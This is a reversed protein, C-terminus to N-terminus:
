NGRKRGSKKKTSKKTVKKVAKKAARNIVRKMSAGSPVRSVMNSSKEVKERKWKEFEEKLETQSKGKEKMEKFYEVDEPEYLLKGISTSHVFEMFDVFDNFNKSNVFDIGHERMTAIKKARDERYGAVSGYPHELFYKLDALSRNLEKRDPIDKIKKFRPAYYVLFNEANKYGRFDSTELRALRKQAIDRLRTYEKNVESTPMQALGTPTYSGEQFAFKVKSASSGGTYRKAM